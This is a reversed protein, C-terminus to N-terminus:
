ISNSTELRNSINTPIRNCLIFLIDDKVLWANDLNHKIQKKTKNKGGVEFITQDVEFDQKLNIDEIGAAVAEGAEPIEAASLATVTRAATFSPAVCLFVLHWEM